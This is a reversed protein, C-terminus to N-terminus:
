VLHPKSLAPLSARFVCQRPFTNRFILRPGATGATLDKMTVIIPEIQTLYTYHLGANFILWTIGWTAVAHRAYAMSLPYLDGVNLPHLDFTTGDRHHFKYFFLSSLTANYSPVFLRESTTCAVPTNAEDSSRVTVGGTRVCKSNTSEEFGTASYFM